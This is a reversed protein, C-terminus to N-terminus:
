GGHKFKRALASGSSYVAPKDPAPNGLFASTFATREAENRTQENSMWNPILTNM